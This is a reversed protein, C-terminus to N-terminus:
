RHLCAHARILARTEVPVARAAQESGTATKCSLWFYGGRPDVVLRAPALGHALLASLYPTTSNWSLRDLARPVRLASVFRPDGLEPDSAQGMALSQLAAKYHQWAAVFKATEVGHVLLVLALAGLAFRAAEGGSLITLVRPLGPIAALNRGERRLVHLGALAGFAPTAVLLLTRMYYRKDAHLGQDIGAWYVALALAVLAGAALHTRRSGSGRLLLFSLAYGLLVASLLIFLRSTCISFDFVHLAARVLVPAFYDDPPFAARVVFGAAVALAFVAGARLFAADRLGRLSLLAVVLGAFILAGDHSFVLALMGALALAFGALGPRPYFCLALVPWFVAHAMWVETPFGFVLPCLCATSACAFGFFVRGPSRDAAFTAFLGLLPMVFHLVGYVALGDQVRGTLGVVTEAPWLSFLFPFIRGSINHWHFAWVDQAAVAYSFMAGDGYLQLQYSLGLPVFSSACGLGAAVAFRRLRANEIAAPVFNWSAPPLVRTSLRSTM